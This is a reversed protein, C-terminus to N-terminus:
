IWQASAGLTRLDRAIDEYGRDLHITDSIETVGDAVLGAVALAAGGRIDRAQVPAGSLQRQGKVIIHHDSTRIDAGLRRLEAIYGMRSGYLNETAIATGDSVAMAAIVMPMYDTAVGPFPLSRVDAAKSRGDAVVSVGDIHPSVNVGMEAMHYALAEIHSFHTGRVVIQGQAAAVACIYTGAVIRDGIITHEIPDLSDVGQVTITNSGAGLVNAGMRNLFSAEDVIEPERACNHINTVGDALTAAMMLHETAGVSPYDLYIDAGRLKDATGRLVGHEFSITAGMAELGRLHMDIPRSGFDDGGPMAVTAEGFRALLPGLVIISARMKSVAEYSAEPKLGEASEINLAGEPDFWCKSGMLELVEMMWRVDLIRPVNWLKFAGSALVTAPMLKIACNKAGPVTVRGELPGAAEIRLVRDPGDAERGLTKIPEMPVDYAVPSGEAFKVLACALKSAPGPSSQTLVM